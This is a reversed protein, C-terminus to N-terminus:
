KALSLAAVCFLHLHAYPDTDGDHDRNAQDPRDCRHGLPDGHDARALCECGFVMLPRGQTVRRWGVPLGREGVTARALMALHAIAICRDQLFGARALWVGLVGRPDNKGVGGGLFHGASV